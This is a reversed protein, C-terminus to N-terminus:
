LGKKMLGVSTLAGWHGNKSNSNTTGNVIGFGRPASPGVFVNSAPLGAKVADQIIAKTDYVKKTSGVPPDKSVGYPEIVYIKNKDVLGSNLIRLAKACGASFLFVQVGPTTKLFDLVVQTRDNHHFGKIEEITKGLGANLLKVQEALNRDTSRHELGGVLVAKIQPVLPTVNAQDM